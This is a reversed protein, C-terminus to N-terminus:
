VDIAASVPPMAPVDPAVALAELLAPAALATEPAAAPQWTLLPPPAAPPASAVEAPGAAPMAAPTYWHLLARAWNEDIPPFALIPAPEAADAGPAPQWTLLAVPETASAASANRPPASDPAEARAPNPSAAAAAVSAALWGIAPSAADFPLRASVPLIPAPPEIESAPRWTL